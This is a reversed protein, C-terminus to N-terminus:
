HQCTCGFSAISVREVETVNYKELMFLIHNLHLAASLQMRDVSIMTGLAFAM